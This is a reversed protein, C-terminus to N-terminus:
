KRLWYDTWTSWIKYTVVRLTTKGRRSRNHRIYTCWCVRSRQRERERLAFIGNPVCVRCYMTLTRARVCTTKICSHVSPIFNISFYTHARVRMNQKSRVSFVIPLPIARPVTESIETRKAHNQYDSFRIFEIKGNSDVFDVQSLHNKNWLNRKRFANGVALAYQVFKGLIFLSQLIKERRIGAFKELYTGCKQVTQPWTREHGNPRWFTFRKWWLGFSLVNVNQTSISWYNVARHVTSSGNNGIGICAIRIKTTATTQPKWWDCGTERRRVTSSTFHLNAFSPFRCRFFYYFFVIIIGDLPRNKRRNRECLPVNINTDDVSSM